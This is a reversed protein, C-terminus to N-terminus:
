TGLGMGKNIDSATLCTTFTDAPNGIFTLINHGVLLEMYNVSNQQCASDEEASILRTSGVVPTTGACFAQLGANSGTVNTEFTVGSASAQALQTLLPLVVGSGAAPLTTSDQAMLLPICLLCMLGVCVRFGRQLSKLM